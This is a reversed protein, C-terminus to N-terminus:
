ATRYWAYCTIYPPMYDTGSGTSSTTASGGSITKGKNGRWYSQGLTTGDSSDASGDPNGRTDSAVVSDHTHAPLNEITIKKSGGTSKSSTTCYLFRDKIQTWSGFGFVTAPNTSTMSTYIAGVPYISKLIEKKLETYDHTHDKAAYQLYYHDHLNELASIKVQNEYILNSM